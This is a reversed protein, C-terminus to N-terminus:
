INNKTPTVRLIEKELLGGIPSSKLVSVFCDFKIRNADLYRRITVSPFLHLKATKIKNTIPQWINPFYLDHCFAQSYIQATFFNVLIQTLRSRNGLKKRPPHSTRPHPTPPYSFTLSSLSPNHLNVLM